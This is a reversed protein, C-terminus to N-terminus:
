SGGRPYDYKSVKHDSHDIEETMNYESQKGRVAALRENRCAKCFLFHWLCQPCLFWKM